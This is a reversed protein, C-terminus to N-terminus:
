TKFTHYALEGPFYNCLQILYWAVEDEGMKDKAMKDELMQDKVLKAMSWTNRKEYQSKGTLGKTLHDKGLENKEM